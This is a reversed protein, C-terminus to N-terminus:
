RSPFAGSPVLWAYRASMLPESYLVALQKVVQRTRQVSKGNLIYPRFGSVLVATLNEVLKRRIKPRVCNPEEGNIRYSKV